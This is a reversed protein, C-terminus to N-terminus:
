WHCLCRVNLMTRQNCAMLAATIVVNLQMRTQMRTDNEGRQYLAPCGYMEALQEFATSNSALSIVDAPAPGSFPAQFRGMAEEVIQEIESPQWASLCDPTCMNLVTQTARREM